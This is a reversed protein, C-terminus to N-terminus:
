STVPKANRGTCARLLVWLGCVASEVLLLLFHGIRSLRGRITSGYAPALYDLWDFLADPRCGIVQAITETAKRSALWKRWKAQEGAFEPERYEIDPLTVGLYRRVMWLTRTLEQRCIDSSAIESFRRLTEADALRIILALDLWPLVPGNELFAHELEAMSRAYRLRSEKEAHLACALIRDEPLTFNLEPTERNRYPHDIAWHLDIPIASDPSILPWHLHHRALYWRPLLRNRLRYGSQELMRLADWRRSLPVILDIDTCYRLAPDGYLERGHIVGRWATVPIGGAALLATLRDAEGLYKRARGIMNFYAARCEELFPADMGPGELELGYLLPEMRQGRIWQQYNSPDRSLAVKRLLESVITAVESM